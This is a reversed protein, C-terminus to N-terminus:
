DAFLHQLRDSQANAISLGHAALWDSIEHATERAHDADLDPGDFEPPDEPDPFAEVVVDIRLDDSTHFSHDHRTAAAGPAHPRPSTRPAASAPAPRDIKM